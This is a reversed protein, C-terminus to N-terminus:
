SGVAASGTRRARVPAPLTIMFEYRHQDRQVDITGRQNEVLRRVLPLSLGHGLQGAFPEFLEPPLPQMVPAATIRLSASADDATTGLAVDADPAFALLVLLLEMLARRLQNVDVAVLAGHFPRDLEIPRAGRAARMPAILTVVDRVLDSLDIEEFRPIEPQAFDLFAEVVNKVRAIERQLIEIFERKDHGAKFDAALIEVCGHISALPTRIDHAMGAAIEGVTSLREAKLRAELSTELRTCTDALEESIRQYRNREDRLKDSMVGTVSAILNFLVIEGYQGVEFVPWGRWALTIHPLYLVSSLLALTLGGQLGFRMAAIVIPVYYLRRLLEHFFINQTDLLYHVVSILVVASALLSPELWRIPRAVLLSM